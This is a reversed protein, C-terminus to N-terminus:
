ESKYTDTYYQEADLKYEIGDPINYKLCKVFADMIQEKEMEKAQEVQTSIVNIVKDGYADQFAKILFGVATQKEM